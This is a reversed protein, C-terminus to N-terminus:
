LHFLCVELVQFLSTTISPSRNGCGVDLVKIKENINGKDKIFKRLYIFKNNLYLKIKQRAKDKFIIM